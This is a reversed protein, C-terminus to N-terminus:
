TEEVMMHMGSSLAGADANAANCTAMDEDDATKDDKVVNGHAIDEHAIDEHAIDEYAMDEYAINKYPYKCEVLKNSDIVGVLSVNRASKDLYLAASRTKV